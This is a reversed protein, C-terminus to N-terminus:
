LLKASKIKELISLPIDFGPKLIQPIKYDRLKEIFNEYNSFYFIKNM